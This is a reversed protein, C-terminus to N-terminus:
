NFDVVPANESGPTATFTKWKDPTFGFAGALFKAPFRRVGTRYTKVVLNYKNREFNIRNETGALEDQLALFNQNAKLDPYNEVVVLLRALASSMMGDAEQMKEADQSQGAKHVASRAETLETLLEKEHSAYGKVTNIINPILDARRQYSSEVNGWKQAVEEDLSVFGNYKGIAYLVMFAGCALIAILIVLAVM